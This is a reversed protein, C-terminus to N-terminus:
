KSGHKILETYSFFNPQLSLSDNLGIVLNLWLSYQNKPRRSILMKLLDRETLSSCFGSSILVVRIRSNTYNLGSALLAKIFFNDISALLHM